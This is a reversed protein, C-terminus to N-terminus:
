DNKVRRGLILSMYDDDKLIDDAKNMIRENLCSCRKVYTYAFGYRELINLIMEKNRSTKLICITDSHKLIDIDIDGDTLYFKQGKSALPMKIRNAAANFSSIGPVSEVYINLIELETMIYSFTSYVMPDGITLFVGMCGDGLYSDIIKAAEKYRKSNDKGMLFKIYVTKKDEIFEKTIEGAFSKEGSNPIFIVDASRILKYGKLTIYDSDGPGVGIGYVKKM